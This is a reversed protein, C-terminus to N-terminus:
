SKPFDYAAKTAEIELEKREKDWGLEQAMVSACENLTDSGPSGATGLETRRFVVDSLKLAMEEKVAHIVEAKLVSTSDSLTQGLVPEQDVYKLIEAYKSGYNYILHEIMEPPLRKSSAMKEQELYQEFNNIEGGYIPVRRSLAKPPTQGM